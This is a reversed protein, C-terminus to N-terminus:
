KLSAALRTLRGRISADIVDDRVHVRVGGLLEPADEYTTRVKHQLRKELFADFAAVDAIPMASEVKVPVIEEDQLRLAQFREVVAPLVSLRGNEALLSLFRRKRDDLRGGLSDLLVELLDGDSLPRRGGIIDLISEVTRAAASLFDEWEALQGAERAVAFAAATYPRAITPADAM